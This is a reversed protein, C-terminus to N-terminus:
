DCSKDNSSIELLKATLAELAESIKWETIPDGVRNSIARLQACEVGLEQCVAFLAAGEMNEIQSTTSSHGSSSVSNSQVGRLDSFHHNNKYSRRYRQPLEEIMEEVVEVVAALPTKDLDYGGAIGALIIFEGPHQAAVRAVVGGCAAMGVGSIVVKSTPSSVVFLEAEQSTPFIFIM